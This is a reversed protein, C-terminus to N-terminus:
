KGAIQMLLNEATIQKNAYRPPLMDTQAQQIMKFGSIIKCLGKRGAHQKVISLLDANIVMDEMGEKYVAMDRYWMKLFELLEVPEGKSIEESAKFLGEIDDLSLQSAMEIIKKRQELMAEMDWNLVKGVSGGSLSSLLLATEDAIGSKQKLIEVIIHKPLPSFNIRQCRSVITPLLMAGDSVILIIISDKPPEELTKLFANAAERNMKEAGDVICVKKGGRAARYYLRQQIDRVADIKIIGSVHDVEGGKYEPGRPEILFVDAHSLNDIDKCNRCEGCFDDNFGASEGKHFTSLPLNDKASCNLSKALSIAVLRKKKKEQGVFLFSHALRNNFIAKKLIAIERDHGLIDRFPM